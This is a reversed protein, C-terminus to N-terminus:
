AGEDATITNEAYAQASLYAYETETNTFSATPRNETNDIAFHETGINSVSFVVSNGIHDTTSDKIGLAEKTDSGSGKYLNSGSWLDYDTSSWRNEETVRYIGQEKVVVTRSGRWVSAPFTYNKDTDYTVTVQNETSDYSYKGDHSDGVTFTDTVDDECTLTVYFSELV